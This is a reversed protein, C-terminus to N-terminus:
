QFANQWRHLLRGAIHATFVILDDLVLGLHVDPHREAERVGVFDTHGIQAHANEVADHVMLGVNPTLPYKGGPAVHFLLHALVIQGQPRQLAVVRHLVKIEDGKRHAIFHAIGVDEVHQIQGLHGEM